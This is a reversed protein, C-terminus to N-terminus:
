RIGELLEDADHHIEAWDKNRRLVVLNTGRPASQLVQRSHATAIFQTKPFLDSLFKMVQRQWRQHLHLDIEDICVVAPQSLPSGSNAYVVQMRRTFDVLWAILTRYGVSLDRMPVWGYPTKFEMIAHGNKTGIRIAAIDILVSKLFERVREAARAERLKKRSPGFHSMQLFWEEANLLQADDVFLSEDGSSELPKRGSDAENGHRRSAGYGFYKIAGGGDFDWVPAPMTNRARKPFKVSFREIRKPRMLVEASIVADKVDKRHPWWNYRIFSPVERDDQLTSAVSCIAQLLTTKGSGNDGFILTWPAPGGARTSLNLKQKPGFCRVNELEVSLLYAPAREDDHKAAKRRRTARPAVKKGKAPPKTRKKAVTKRKTAM